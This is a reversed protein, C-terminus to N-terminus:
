LRNPTLGRFKFDGLVIVKQEPAEDNYLEIGAEYELEDASVIKVTDVFQYCPNDRSDKGSRFLVDMAPSNLLTHALEHSNM